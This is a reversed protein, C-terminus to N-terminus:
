SENNSAQNLLKYGSLVTFRGDYDYSTEIDSNVAPIFGVSDILDKSVFVDTIDMGVFDESRPAQLCKLSVGQVHRGKKNTYDLKEYGVVHLKM